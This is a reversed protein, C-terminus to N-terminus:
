LSSPRGELILGVIDNGVFLLDYDPSEARDVADEESFVPAGTAASIEEALVKVEKNRLRKRKRIRIEAM